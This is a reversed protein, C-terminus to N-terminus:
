ARPVARRKFSGASSGVANRAFVSVSYTRGNTVGAITCSTGTTSCSFERVLGRIRIVASATYGTVAPGGRSTSTTWSVKIRRDISTVRGIRPASPVGPWVGTSETSYIPYEGSPGTCVNVGYGCVDFSGVATCARASTCSVNSFAGGGDVIASSWAGYAKTVRISEDDVTGFAPTMSDGVATCDTASTCSVGSLSGFSGPAHVETAAGWTGASEAAYIPDDTPGGAVGVATCESSSNCSIASFSGISGGPAAIETPTGWTGATETAYIPQNPSYFGYTGDYSEDDGVATCDTASTCSVGNFYGVFKEADLFTAPGWTGGSESAYMPGNGGVATCDGVSTCSVSTFGAGAASLFFGGVSTTIETADGWKGATETAYIPYGIEAEGHVDFSGSYDYGVATCNWVSTCSVGTFVGFNEPAAIEKAKAWVGATETAYIPQLTPSDLPGTQGHGYSGVATCDTASTCSVDTFVTEPRFTTASGLASAPVSWAIPVLASVLIAIASSAILGSRRGGTSSKLRQVPMGCARTGVNRNECPM